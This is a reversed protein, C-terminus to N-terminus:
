MYNKAYVNYNLEPLGQKYFIEATNKIKIKYKYGSRNTFRPISGGLPTSSNPGGPVPFVRQALATAFRVSAQKMRTM